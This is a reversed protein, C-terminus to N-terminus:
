LTYSKRESHSRGTQARCKLFFHLFRDSLICCESVVEWILLDVVWGFLAQIPSLKVINTFLSGTPDEDEDRHITYSKAM